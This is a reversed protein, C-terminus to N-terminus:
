GAPARFAARSSPLVLLTLAATLAALSVAMSVDFYPPLAAMAEPARLRALVLLAGLGLMLWFAVLGLAVWWAWRRLGLLGWALLGVGAARILARPFAAAQEWGSLSQLVVANALVFLGYALLVWAALRVTTPVVEPTNQVPSAANEM